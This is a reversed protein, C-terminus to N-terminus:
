QWPTLHDTITVLYPTGHFSWSVRSVVRVDVPNGLSDVPAGAVAEVAITRTFVTQISGPPNQQTYVNPPVTLYLPTCSGGACTTISAPLSKIPDLQCASTRCPTISAPSVGNLFDAWADDSATPNRANYNALYRQDRMSRIYEVGEQALYSATLQQRAGQAAIIARSAAFLPGVVAFTLVTM